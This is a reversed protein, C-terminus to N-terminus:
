QGIPDEEGIGHVAGVEVSVRYTLPTHVHACSVVNLLLGEHKAPCYKDPCVIPEIVLVPVAPVHAAYGQICM